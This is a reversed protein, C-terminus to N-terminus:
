LTSQPFLAAWAYVSSLFIFVLTLAHYGYKYFWNTLYPTADFIFFQVMLRTFWFTAIMGCVARALPSGAALDGTYTLTITGFSVIMLVIFAGYVWFMQRMMKPLCALTTKWNLAKPTSASAILIAFHAIGAITLATNLNLITPM